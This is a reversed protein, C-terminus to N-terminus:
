KLSPTYVRATKDIITMPTHTAGGKEGSAFWRNKSSSEPQQRISKSLRLNERSLRQNSDYLRKIIKKAAASSLSSQQVQELVANQKRIQEQLLAMMKQQSQNQQELQQIKLESERVRATLTNWQSATPQLGATSSEKTKGKGKPTKSDIIASSSSSAAQGNDTSQSQSLAPRSKAKNQLALQGASEGGYIGLTCDLRKLIKNTSLANEILKLGADSCRHQNMNIHELTDHKPLHRAIEAAQKDDIGSCSIDLKILRLEPQTFLGADIRDFHVSVDLDQMSPHWKLGEALAKWANLANGSELSMDSLNLIKLRPHRKVAQALQILAKESYGSKYLNLNELHGNEMLAQAIAELGESSFHNNGIDLTKLTPHTAMFQAIIKIGEDAIQNGYLDLCEFQPKNSIADVLAKAGEDKIQNLSLSVKIILNSRRIFDAIRKAGECTLQNSSFNIETIREALGNEECLDFLRKVFDDDIYCKGYFWFSITKGKAQRLQNFLEEPTTIDFFCSNICVRM